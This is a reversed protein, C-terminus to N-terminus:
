SSSTLAAAGGGSDDALAVSPDSEQGDVERPSRFGSSRAGRISAGGTGGGAPKGGECVRLQSEGAAAVQGHANPGVESDYPPISDVEAGM